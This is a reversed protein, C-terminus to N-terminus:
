PTTTTTPSILFVHHGTFLLLLGVVWEIVAVGGMVMGALALGNGGLRGNSARIRYRAQSGQYIAVAGLIVGCCVLSLLGCVLAAVAGKARGIPRPSYSAAYVPDPRAAFPM